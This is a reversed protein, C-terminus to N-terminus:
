GSTCQLRKNKLTVFKGYKSEIMEKVHKTKPNLSLIENVAEKRSQKRGEIQLIILQLM